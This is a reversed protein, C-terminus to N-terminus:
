KKQAVLSMLLHLQSENDLALQLINVVDGVTKCHPNLKVLLTVADKISEKFSAEVEEQTPKDPM